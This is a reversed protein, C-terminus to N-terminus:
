MGIYLSSVGGDQLQNARFQVGEQFLHKQDEVSMGAGSDKVEILMSGTKLFQHEKEM